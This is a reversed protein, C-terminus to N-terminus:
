SQVVVEKEKDKSESKNKENRKYWPTDKSSTDDTTQVVDVGEVFGFEMVCKECMVDGFNDDFVKAGKVIAKECIICVDDNANTRGVPLSKQVTGGANRNNHYTSNYKNYGSSAPPNYTTPNRKREGRYSKNSFMWGNSEEEFDGVTVLKDPSLVAYVGGDTLSLIHPIQEFSLEPIKNLYRVLQQTDSFDSNRPMQTIVGNHMVLVDACGKEEKLADDGCFLPFPHTTAEDKKGHTGIRFHCVLQYETPIKEIYEIVKKAANDGMFGKHWHVKESDSWMVGAGDKNAEACANIWKRATEDFEVGKPRVAIVCM